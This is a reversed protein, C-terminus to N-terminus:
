HHSIVVTSRFLKETNGIRVVYIGEALSATNVPLLATGATCDAHFLTRGLPDFLDITFSETFANGPDITLLDGAPNPYVSISETGMAADGTCVSVDITDRAMCGNTTIVNVWYTGPGSVSFNAAANGDQWLYNYGAPASVTFPFGGPCVATDNGLDLALAPDDWSIRISDTSITCGDNVTVWYLGPQWATYTSNHTGDQWTYNLYVASTHLAVTHGTCVTTDNGLNAPPRNLPPFFTISDGTVCGNSDTATVWYLGPQYAYHFQMNSITNNTPDHWFSYVRNPGINMLAYSCLITDPGLDIPAASVTHVIFTDIIAGCYGFYKIMLTDISGSAVTNLVVTSDTMNSISGPGSHTWVTSDGAAAYAVEFTASSNNCVERPGSIRPTSWLQIGQLFNPMCWGISGYQGPIIIADYVYGCATGALNPNPIYDVHLQARDVWLRGDPGLTINAFSSTQTSNYPDVQVQSAIIASPGGASLDYQYVKGYILISCYLKSNDPSFELGYPREDTTSSYVIDFSNSSQGTTNDFDCVRVRSPPNQTQALCYALRHGDHSFKIASLGQGAAIGTASVVPTSSLGSATLLYAYVNGGNSASTAIWIDQHNSHYTASVHESNGTMVPVNKSSTVVDGLGNDLTMDVITYRLGNAYSNEFCDTTFIYFRTASGPDPVILCSQTSSAAGLLGTGNPMPQQNRNWVTLGDTFLLLNGNADSYSSTCETGFFPPQPIVSSPTMVPLSTGSFHWSMRPLLWNSITGAEGCNGIQFFYSASTDSCQGNSTVLYVYHSGATNFTQSFSTATSQNTGDLVWQYTSAGSSADTFTLTAGPTYPGAPSYTFASQSGCLVHVQESITKDCTVDNNTAVLTVNYYGPTNFVYSANTTTAIQTNGIYWTFSTAGTTTNTFNVTGGATITSASLTFGITIPSSCLPQCGISQLLSSRTTSIAAVMRTKQGDTFLRQCSQYGYDMYNETQDPQDGLGGASVPRFPNNVSLDDADSTCTNVPTGCNVAATSQDPPTDCVRDGDTLCNNNTCGGEFTHYLGLYHGAEHIIVKSDDANTGFYRAENVIGDEPGGHSSPLYAYGAVGPGSSLSTIENVIWINLYKTPDWRSLNKLAIDDTEATVNTLTSVVRDIGSTFNGNEDQQALCFSIGTNVGNPDQYAGTNAFADNMFQIGQLVQANSINEPGNNHIIHVVVPIVYASSASRGASEQQIWHLIGQNMEVDRLQQGPDQALKQQRLQDSICVTTAPAHGAETQAPLYFAALVLLSTFFQKMPDHTKCFCTGGQLILSLSLRNSRCVFVVQM